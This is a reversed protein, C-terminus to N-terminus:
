QIIVQWLDHRLAGNDVYCGVSSITSYSLCSVMVMDMRFFEVIHLLFLGELPGLAERLLGLTECGVVKFIEVVEGLYMM